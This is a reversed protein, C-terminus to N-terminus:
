SNHTQDALVNIADLNVDGDMSGNTAALGGFSVSITARIAHSGPDTIPAYAGGDVTFPDDATLEAALTSTASMM